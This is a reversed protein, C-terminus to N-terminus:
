RSNRRESIVNEEPFNEPFDCKERTKRTHLMDSASANQVDKAGAGAIGIRHFTEM